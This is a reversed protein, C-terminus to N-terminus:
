KKPAAPRWYHEVVARGIEACLKNGANDPTWSKDENQSTLVVLAVPGEKFTQIGANTRAEYVSGTKHAVTV